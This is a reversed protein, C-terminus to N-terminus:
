DLILRLVALFFFLQVTKKDSNNSKTFFHGLQEWKLFKGGKM